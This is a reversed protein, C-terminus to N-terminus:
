RRAGRIGPVRPTPLFPNFTRTQGSTMTAQSTDGIIVAANAKLQGSIVETSTGDTIGLVLNAPEPKGEAGLVWVRGPRLVRRQLPVLRLKAAPDWKQGPALDVTHQAPRKSTSSQVERSGEEEDKLVQEPSTKIEEKQTGSPTYRLAANPIKLVSDLRDVTITINATMGPKLKLDSNDISLIVSYTVVNQVTTPSLRIEEIQGKFTENPFADVTFRADALDSINGIDAEDISANVKMKRLDNAITFLTPSQLSAAITQGVDVSRSIVVGDVPSYINTYELNVKARDLDAQAQDLQAKASDVQAAAAQEQAGSQDVVALAQGYRAQATDANAKAEDYDNQSAIGRDSLDVVRRFLTATNDRAVLAADLNAKASRQNAEAMVLEAKASGVRARAAAVAAAANELQAELNRPDIRALLQGRKVISNFDAYLEKIQGSIQSGVQVTVVTQVVGTANV